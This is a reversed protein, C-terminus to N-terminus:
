LRRGDRRFVNYDFTFQIPIETGKFESPLPSFPSSDEVAEIAAKDTEANGSYEMIALSKLNGDKNIRFMVVVHKSENGRPPNWNRKIEHQINRMYPGWYTETQSDSNKKSPVSETYDSLSKINLTQNDFIFLLSVNRENYESPFPSFPEASEVASKAAEDAIANDSSKKVKLALLKGDKNIKVKLVIPRNEFRRPPDWYRYTKLQLIKIYNDLDSSTLQAPESSNTTAPLENAKASLNIDVSICLAIIFSFTFYSLNKIKNLNLNM